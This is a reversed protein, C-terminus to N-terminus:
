SGAVPTVLTGDKVFRALNALTLDSMARRTESTGSGLHPTLVVRDLTLLAAPVHPEDAFTDLGAGALRGGVLASVLATEDVASGRAVNVLFADAGLADIVEASVLHRTNPGGSVAVVLVDVDAALAAPSPAYRYPVDRPSRNHYSIDCGFGDLRRAIALGIRGLGLIGVRAGSVKRALPPNGHAPWDGRRVYRDAASLGRMVDIILGLATDAVCDDLVDPTNSVVIGRRTAEAVDTTDYGVGFNIVARLAPLRSMLAAGVGVRGSTVAITVDDFAGDAFTDPLRRAAYDSALASELFPMLPGVQVVTM